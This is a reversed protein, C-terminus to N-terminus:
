IMKGTILCLEKESLKVIDAIQIYQSCKIIFDQDDTILVGRYNADFSIFKDNEIAYNLIIDYARYLEGGLLQQALLTFVM